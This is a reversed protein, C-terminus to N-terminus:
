RDNKSGKRTGSTGGGKQSTVGVGLVIGGDTHVRQRICIITCHSLANNVFLTSGCGYKTNQPNVNLVVYICSMNMITKICM